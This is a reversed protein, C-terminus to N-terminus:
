VVFVIICCALVTYIFFKIYEGDDSCDPDAYCIDNCNGDSIMFNFCGNQGLCALNSFGCDENDCWISCNGSRIDEYSCGQSCEQCSQPPNSLSLCYASELHNIWYINISNIVIREKLTDSIGYRDLAGYDSYFNHLYGKAFRKTCNVESDCTTLVSRLFQLLETTSNTDSSSTYLQEYVDLMITYTQLIQSGPVKNGVICYRNKSPTILCDRTSNEAENECILQFRINDWSIKYKANIRSIRDVLVLDKSFNGSLKVEVFPDFSEFLEYRYTVWIDKHKIFHDNYLNRDIGIVVIESSDGECDESIVLPSDQVVVLGKGGKDEVVKACQSICVGTSNALLVWSEFDLEDIIECNEFTNLKGYHSYLGPNGFTAVQVSIDFNRLSDPSQVRFEAYVLVFTFM